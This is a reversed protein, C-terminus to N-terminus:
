KFDAFKEDQDTALSAIGRALHGVERVAQTSYLRALHRRIFPNESM